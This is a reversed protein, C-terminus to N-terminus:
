KRANKLEKELMEIPLNFITSNPSVKVLIITKYAKSRKGQHNNTLKKSSKRLIKM